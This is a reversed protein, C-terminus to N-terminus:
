VYLEHVQQSFGTGWQPICLRDEHSASFERQSIKSALFLTYKPQIFSDMSDHVKNKQTAMFVWFM